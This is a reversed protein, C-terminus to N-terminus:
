MRAAERRYMQVLASANAGKKQLDNAVDERSKHPFRSTLNELLAAKDRDGDEFRQREAGEAAKQKAEEELRKQEAEEAAKQRKEDELRERKARLTAKRRAEHELRQQEEENLRHQEAKPAAKQGAGERRRQAERVARQWAEEELREGEPDNKAADKIEELTAELVKSLPRPQGGSRLSVGYPVRPMGMKMDPRSRTAKPDTVIPAGFHM